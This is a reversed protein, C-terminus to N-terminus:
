VLCPVHFKIFKFWFQRGECLVNNKPGPFMVANDSVHAVTLQLPSSQLFMASSTWYRHKRFATERINEYLEEINTRDAAMIVTVNVTVLSM